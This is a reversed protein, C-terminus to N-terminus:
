KASKPPYSRPREARFPNHPTLLLYSLGGIYREQDWDLWHDIQVAFAAQLKQDKLQLRLLYQRVEGPELPIQEPEKVPKFNCENGLIQETARRNIVGLVDIPVRDPIIEQAVQDYQKVMGDQPGRALQLTVESPRGFTLNRCALERLLDPRSEVLDELRARDAQPDIVYIDLRTDGRKELTNCAGFSIDDLEFKM